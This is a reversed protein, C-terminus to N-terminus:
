LRRKVFFKALKPILFKYFNVLNLARSMVVRWLSLCFQLNLDSKALFNTCRVFEIRFVHSHIQLSVERHYSPRLYHQSLPTKATFKNFEDNFNIDIKLATKPTPLLFSGLTRYPCQFISFGLQFYEM